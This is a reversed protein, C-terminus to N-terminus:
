RSLCNWSVRSRERCGSFYSDRARAAPPRWPIEQSEGTETVGLITLRESCREITKKGSLDVVFGYADGGRDSFAAAVDRRALRPSAVTEASPGIQVRVGHSPQCLRSDRIWGRVGLGHETAVFEDVWGQLCDATADADSALGLARM